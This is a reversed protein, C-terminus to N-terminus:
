SQFNSPPGYNFSSNLCKFIRHLFRAETFKHNRPSLFKSSSACHPFASVFVQKAYQLISDVQRMRESSWYFLKTIEKSLLSWLNLRLKTPSTTGVTMCLKLWKRYQSGGALKDGQCVHNNNDTHNSNNSNNNHHHNNNNNNNFKSQM